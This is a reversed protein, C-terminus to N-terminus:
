CSVVPVKEYAFRERLRRPLVWRGSFRQQLCVLIVFLLGCCSVIVDWATSYYNLRPNAYIYWIDLKLASSHARFLDYAHPMLRVVTTGIYYPHCLSKGKADSFINFVIQPLLFADLILGAYSKLGGWLSFAQLRAARHKFGRTIKPSIRPHVLAVILVGGMYLPLSLSVVKRETAWLGKQSEDSRSSWTLQLLRCELLFAIMMIVRVLVENVELWGDTGFLVHQRSRNSLFADFNLLLPIMHGLILVVLMVVSIFPLVDPHNKVHFLQLVVFICLLTNSVLVMTIELDIRWISEAAQGKLISTAFLELREFYLPDSKERTSQISGKIFDGTRSKLAPFQVNVFIKCDVLESANQSRKAYVERDWCGVMCLRGTATDYIGEAAVYIEKNTFNRGGLVFGLGPNFSIQYSINLLGNTKSAQAPPKVPQIGPNYFASSNQMLHDSVSLPIARGWATRGEKNKVQMHFIMDSSYPDPYHWGKHKVAKEKACYESAREIETFEYRMGPLAQQRFGSSQIGMRDFYGTENVNKNSWLQGYIVSRSRISLVARLTFNLRFSCDGVSANGPLDEFGLIRCAAFCIRSKNGDWAGEAVLTRSPYFVQHYGNHLNSTNSFGFLVRMMQRNPCAIVNMFMFKGLLGNVFSCNNEDCSGGNDLEFREALRILGFCNGYPASLSAANTSLSDNGSGCGNEIEEKVVSYEYNMMVFGMVSIPTFYGSSGEFDLSELTGTVLSNVIMSNNPYNLKLVVNHDLDNGISSSRGGSGVMCLQGSSSSWYGSLMFSAASETVRNGPGGYVRLLGRERFEPSVGFSKPARLNLKAEIKLVGPTLTKFIKQPFFNAVIQPNHPGLIQQANLVYANALQLFRPPSLYSSSQTSGPVIQNCHKSYLSLSASLSSTISSFISITFFLLRLISTPNPNSLPTGM